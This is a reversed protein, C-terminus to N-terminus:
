LSLGTIKPLIDKQYRDEFTRISELFNPQPMFAVPRRERIFRIAQDTTMNSQLILFMAVCCASRQRGAMCHVLIRDGATYHKMMTYVIEYSWLGANRIEVEELNDDLPVRYQKPAVMKFPLDKTCNFVVDIHNGRLFTEDQSAHYDGLWLRNIIENSHQYNDM